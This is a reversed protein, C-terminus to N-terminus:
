ELIKGAKFDSDFMAKRGVFYRTFTCSVFLINKLCLRLLVM